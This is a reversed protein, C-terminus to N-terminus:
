RPARRSLASLSGDLGTARRHHECDCRFWEMCAGCRKEACAISLVMSLQGAQERTFSYMPRSVDAMRGDLDPIGALDGCAM